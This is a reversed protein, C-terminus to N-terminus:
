DGKDQSKNISSAQGGLFVLLAIAIGGIILWRLINPLSFGTDVEGTKVEKKSEQNLRFSRGSTRIDNEDAKFNKPKLSSSDIENDSTTSFSRTRGFGADNSSINRKGGISSSSLDNKGKSNEKAQKELIQSSFSNPRGDTQGELKGFKSGSSFGRPKSGNSENAGVSNSGGSGNQPSQSKSYNQKSSSNQNSKTSSDSSSGGGSKSTSNSSSSSSNGNSNGGLPTVKEPSFTFTPWYQACVNGGSGNQQQGTTQLGLTPLEGSRLLCVFYGKDTGFLGRAFERFALNFSTLLGFGISVVVVLLLIYEVTTQGSQNRFRKGYYM